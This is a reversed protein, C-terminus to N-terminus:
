QTLELFKHQKSYYTLSHDYPLKYQKLFLNVMQASEYSETLKGHKLLPNQITFLHVYPNNSKRLHRTITKVEEYSVIADNKICCILIPLQPPVSKKVDLITHTSNKYRSFITLFFRHLFRDSYPMWSLYTESVQKSLHKLSLSPYFLIVAKINEIDKWNKCSAIFNLITTAGRCDGFM